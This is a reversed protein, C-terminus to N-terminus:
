IFHFIYWLSLIVELRKKGWVTKLWIVFWMRFITKSHLPVKKCCIAGMHLFYLASLFVGIRSIKSGKWLSSSFFPDESKMDRGKLSRGFERKREFGQSFKLMKSKPRRELERAGTGQVALSFIGQSHILVIIRKAIKISM